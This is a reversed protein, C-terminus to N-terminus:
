TWCSSRCSSEPNSWRPSCKLLRKKALALLRLVITALTTAVAGFLGALAGVVAGDGYPTKESRPADKLYLYVALVGGGIYLACCVANVYQIYPLTALM